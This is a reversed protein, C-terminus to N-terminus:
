FLMRAPHKPAAQPCGRLCCRHLHPQRRQSCCCCLLQMSPSDPPRWLVQSPLPCCGSPYKEHMAPTYTHLLLATHMYAPAMGPTITAAVSLTARGGCEVLREAAWCTQIRQRSHDFKSRKAQCACLARSTAHLIVCQRLQLLHCRPLGAAQHAKIGDAAVDAAVEILQQHPEDPIHPM